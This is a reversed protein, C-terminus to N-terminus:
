VCYSPQKQVIEISLPLCHVINIVVKIVFEPFFFQRECVSSISPTMLPELFKGPM